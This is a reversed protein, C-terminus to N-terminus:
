LIPEKLVLKSMKKREHPKKGAGRQCEGKPLPSSHEQNYKKVNTSDHWTIKKSKTELERAARANLELACMKCFMMDEDCIKIPVLEYRAKCIQPFRGKCEPHLTDTNVYTRIQKKLEFLYEKLHSNVNARNRKSEHGKNM